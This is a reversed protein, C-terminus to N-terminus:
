SLVLRHRLVDKAINHIDHALVYDRGRLLALGQAGHVLNLSGRPSAGYSIYPEIDGVGAERPRRTATALAVAYRSVKPDVYVNATQRRFELLQESTLVRQLRPPADLSRQVVLAEEDRSPYDVVVKMMFRDVQAEPLPYTGEAEIPNQTALVLFPSPVPYTAQGITV